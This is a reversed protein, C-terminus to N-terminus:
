FKNRVPSFSGGPQGEISGLADMQLQPQGLYCNGFNIKGGLSANIIQSNKMYRSINPFINKGGIFSYQQKKVCGCYFKTPNIVYKLSGPTIKVM